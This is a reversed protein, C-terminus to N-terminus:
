KLANSITKAVRRMNGFYDPDLDDIEVVIGNINEAIALASDKSFQKQVFIVRINDKNAEDIIRKIDQISPEKGEIEIFEQFFGYDRALYGFAPHYVLITEGKIPLYYTLLDQHLLDLQAILDQYNTTLEDQYQPYTEVLTNFIIEAQQKVMLPSLWVHPDIQSEEVIDENDHTHADINRLVNNVSTDVIIMNPNVQTLKTLHTKEFSIHGIRFYIEAESVIKIQQSTPEFTEVSYGQPVLATVDFNKGAIKEVIQKQPLVTVILQHKETTQPSSKSVNFLINLLLALTSFMLIIILIIKKSKIKKIM